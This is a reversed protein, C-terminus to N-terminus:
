VVSKRDAVKSISFSGPIVSTLYDAKRDPNFVHLRCYTKWQDMEAFIVRKGDQFYLRTYNPLAEFSGKVQVTFDPNVPPPIRARTSTCGALFAVLIIIPFSGCGTKNVFQRAINQM